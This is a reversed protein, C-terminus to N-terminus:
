RERDGADDKRLHRMQLGRQGKCISEKEDNVEMIHNVTM